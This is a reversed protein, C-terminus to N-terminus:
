RYRLAALAYPTATGKRYRYWFNSTSLYPEPTVQWPVRALGPVAALAIRMQRYCPADDTLLGLWGGLRLVERVALLFPVRALRRKRHRRKPWPDPFYIHVRQISAPTLRPLVATADGHIVCVNALGARYARDAAYLAHPKAWEIALLNVEPRASARKLLFGGKGPGIELEVPLRNGFLTSPELQRPLGADLRLVGARVM